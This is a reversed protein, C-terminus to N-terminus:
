QLRVRGRSELYHQLAPLTDPTFIEPTKEIMKKLEEFPVFKGEETEESLVMSPELVKSELVTVYEWETIKGYKWRPSIFKVVEVLESNIGLEERVERKAAEIYTEGSSVHGTCSVTWRGPYTSVHKSRRQLYLENRANFLFVVVAGHLLGLRVCDSRPRADLVHDNEDVVDSYEERM